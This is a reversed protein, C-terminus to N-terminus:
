VLDRVEITMSIKWGLGAPTVSLKGLRVTHNVQTNKTLLPVVVWDVGQNAENQWYTFFQNKTTNNPVFLAAQLMNETTSSIRRIRQPGTEMSTKITNAEVTLGYGERLLPGFTWAM